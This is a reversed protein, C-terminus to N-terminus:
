ESIRTFYPLRAIPADIKVTRGGDFVNGLEDRWKGKPLRVTRFDEKTVVPAVLYKDGLMFQDVVDALGENPFQYEMARVIPEATKASHRALELIYGAFKTHLLAADRCLDLHKKDLVRWPALSFQMMPMLASVQAYRVILRQDLKTRDIDAFSNVEGGGIMDPCTYAYGILGASLMHPVLKQMDEWRCRKDHLRQVLAKGGMKWTTRMENYEFRYGLEAWGKTYDSPTKEPSFFKVNPSKVHHTDGGDFKFGDIDFDKQLKRLRAELHDLAKPNTTDYSASFGSWWPIIAARKRKGNKEMLLVGAKEWELFEAGVSGVFPGVWYIAKYGMDHIARNLAKPDPIKKADFDLMGCCRDWGGDIMLVGCPFGNAAIDRAYKLINETSQERVLEIWTNFQPKTFFEEPPIRGDPAFHKKAAALFADRLTSGAAVPELKEFDSTLTIVGDKADLAFPKESWVYRGKSSLLFPAAQNAMHSVNLDVKKKLTSFPMQDGLMTAAGYWKEGDLPTITSVHAAFLSQAALLFPILKKLM